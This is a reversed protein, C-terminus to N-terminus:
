SKRLCLLAIDDRPEGDQAEIAMALVADAVKAAPEGAHDRLLETLRDDGYRWEQTRLETVGDTYLLLLEGQALRIARESFEPDPVAGVLTGRVEVRELSGDPRVLIPPPHGASALTIAIGDGDPCLRAYVVTSFRSTATEALLARNLVELNAAPEEHHLAATRLTHRTLSTLAAAEPGKGTVDGIVAAWAGEGAPFVDYFDGGVGNEDGAARYRAAIELGPVEPLQRPLLGAQLTQAVHAREEYLQSNRVHLASRAALATAVAVDDDDFRRGSEAFVLVLAGLVREPTRMPMILAAEAGLERLVELHEPRPAAAALMEDTVNNVLQPEGTRIVRGVGSDRALGPTSGACLERAREARAPDRHAVAVVRAGGGPQVLTIACWDAVFPVAVEAIQQLTTEVDLSVAMRRGAELLFETRARAMEAEGTAAESRVQAAEAHARATIADRLLRAREVEARHRDSIERIVGGVGHLEDGPGVVPFYSAEWYRDGDAIEADVVPRRTAAVTRILGEIREGHPAVVETVRRGLHAEISRGNMDALAQNVRQYRADPTYLALGIPIAGYVADLLATAARAGSLADDARLQAALADTVEHVHAGVGVRAGAPDLVPFYSARWQRRSGPAARTEGQIEVGLRPRGDALIARFLLELEEGLPGLVESLTRGISDAAAVGNISALAENVRVFRLEADWLGLGAPAHEFIADLLAGDLPTTTSSGVRM